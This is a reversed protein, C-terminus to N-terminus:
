ALRARAAPSSRSSRNTMRQFGASQAAFRGRPEGGVRQGFQNYYVLERTEIAVECLAEAVGLRTLNRMAHPLVNIGVGLPTLTKVSEFVQVDIGAKNLELALALGGIGAGIVLVKM